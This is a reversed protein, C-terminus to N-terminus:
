RGLAALLDGALAACAAAVVAPDGVLEEARGAMVSGVSAAQGFLQALFDLAASTVDGALEDALLRVLAAALEDTTIAVLLRYIDYADKDLLRDPTEQRDDLKHLKAVLLAAPGAVRAEVARDDDAALARITLVGNDVVAAELGVARRLARKDHPPAQVSRRGKGAIADPVMLDVPIGAPSLWSGPQGALPDHHFGARSMAEEILPDDGLTRLDIGLDSDKTAEAVAVPASGTHLYIAQAGIVVVSDRHADLAILADLLVSRARALLDDSGGPPNM